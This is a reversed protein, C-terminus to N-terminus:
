ECKVVKRLSYVLLIDKVFEQDNIVPVADVPDTYANKYQQETLSYTNASKM